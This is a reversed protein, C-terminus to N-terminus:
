TLPPPTSSSQLRPRLSILEPPFQAIRTTVPTLTLSAVPPKLANRLLARRDISKERIRQAPNPNWTSTFIVHSRIPHTTTSRGIMKKSRVFPFDLIDKPM